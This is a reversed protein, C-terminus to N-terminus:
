LQSGFRSCIVSFLARAILLHGEATPHCHDIFLREGGNEKFISPLDIVIVNPLNQLKDIEQWYSKKIRLSFFDAQLASDLYAFATSNTDHLLSLSDDHAFLLNIGINYLLPAGAAISSPNTNDKVRRVFVDRAKRLYENAETYQANEWFSVGLNNLLVFNEQDNELLTMYHWISRPPDLSDTYASRYVSRTFKDGHGYLRVFIENSLCYKIEQGLIDAIDKPLIFCGDEGTIHTFVKFQLGAPWLYPVPPKLIILQCDHEQCAQAIRMLNEGFRKPTVRLKLSEPTSDTRKIYKVIASRLVRYIALRGCLKRVAKFRQRELLQQDSHTGSISADNNGCYLLILDPQYDWGKLELFRVIQESTYGSVSANIVEVERNGGYEIELLRGLVEGFTLEHSKLGLGVPSS